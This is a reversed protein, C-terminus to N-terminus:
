PGSGQQKKAPIFVGKVRAGDGGPGGIIRSQGGPLDIVLKEGRIVSEGRKLEVKGGMTIQGSDVDYVAWEGSASETRSKVTVNGIADLRSIGGAAGARAGSSNRYYVRLDNANLQVDGQTAMVKGSFIATQAAQIVELADATIEIPLSSDHSGGLGVPGGAKQASAATSLLFLAVSM